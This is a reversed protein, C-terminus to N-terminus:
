SAMRQKRDHFVTLNRELTVSVSTRGELVEGGLEIAADVWAPDGDHVDVRAGTERILILLARLAGKAEDRTM